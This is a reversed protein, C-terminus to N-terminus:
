RVRSEQAILDDCQFNYLTKQMARGPLGLLESGNTRGGKDPLLGPGSQEPIGVEGWRVSRARNGHMCSELTGAKWETQQDM